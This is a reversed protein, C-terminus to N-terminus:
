RGKAQTTAAPGATSGAVARVQFVYVSKPRIRKVVQKRAAAGKAAVTWKSWKGRQPQFRWEYATVLNAGRSPPAWTLTVKGKSPKAKIGVPESVDGPPAAYYRFPAIDFGVPNSVRLEVFGDPPNPISPVIVTLQSDTFSTVTGAVGLFTVTAAAGNVSFGRGTIAIRDGPSGAAPDVSDIQPAVSAPRIDSGAQAVALGATALGFTVLVSGVAVLRRRHDSAFSM